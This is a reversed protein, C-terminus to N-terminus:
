PRTRSCPLKTSSVNGVRLWHLSLLADTIHVTVTLTSFVVNFM